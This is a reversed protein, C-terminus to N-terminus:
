NSADRLKTCLEKERNSFGYLETSIHQLINALTECQSSPIYMFDIYLGADSEKKGQRSVDEILTSISLLETATLKVQAM